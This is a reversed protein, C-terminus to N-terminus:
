AGSRRIMWLGMGRISPPASYDGYVGRVEGKQVLWHEEDAHRILRAVRQREAMHRAARKRKVTVALPISVAGILLLVLLIV